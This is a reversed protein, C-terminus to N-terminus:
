REGILKKAEEYKGDISSFYEKYKLFRHLIEKGREKQDQKIYYRGLWLMANLKCEQEKFSDGKALAEFIEIQLKENQMKGAIEGAYYHTAPHIQSQKKIAKYQKMAFDMLAMSNSKAAVEFFTPEKWISSKPEDKILQALQDVSKEEETALVDPALLQVAAQAFDYEIALKEYFKGPRDKVYHRLFSCVMPSNLPNGFGLRASQSILASTSLVILCLQNSPIRLLISADADGYGYVWHMEVGEFNRVFWGLGYPSGKYFPSTIKQYQEKSIIKNDDLANSYKVLDNMSSMMGFGPGSQLSELKVPESKWTSDENIWFQPCVIWKKLHGYEQLNYRTLTHKMQLPTLIQEEIPMTFNRFVGGSDSLNYIGSLANYVLNFKGGNYAFNQGIPNSESTLSLIHALTTSSNWRVKTFYRNPFKDIPDTLRLRGQAELIQFLASTFTKTLSAIGLIHDPTIAEVRASDAHGISKFFILQGKEVVGVALGPLNISKSYLEIDRAFTTQGFIKPTLLFLGFAFLIFLIKRKV